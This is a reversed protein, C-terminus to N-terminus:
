RSRRRARRKLDARRNKKFAGNRSRGNTTRYFTGCHIGRADIMPGADAAPGENSLMFKLLSALNHM